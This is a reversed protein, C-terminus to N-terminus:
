SPAARGNVTWVYRPPPALSAGIFCGREARALLNRTDSPEPDLQADVACEIEVFGWSGDDRRSIAGRATASAEVSIGDKRAHHDLAALSCRALAALVLHEPTWAPDFATPDRGGIEVAYETRKPRAPV